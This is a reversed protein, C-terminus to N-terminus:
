RRTPQWMAVRRGSLHHVWAVLISANVLLFFGLLRPIQFRDIAPAALAAGGLTYAALQVCLLLM